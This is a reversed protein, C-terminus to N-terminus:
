RWCGFHKFTWIDIAMQLYQITLWVTMIISRQAKNTEKLTYNLSASQFASKSCQMFWMLVGILACKRDTMQVEQCVSASCYWHICVETPATEWQVPIWYQSCGQQLWRIQGASCLIGAFSCDGPPLLYWWEPDGREGSTFWCHFQKLALFAKINGQLCIRHYLEKVSWWIDSTCYWMIIVKWTRSNM